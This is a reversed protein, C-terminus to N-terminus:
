CSFDISGYPAAVQLFRTNHVVVWDGPEKRLVFVKGPKWTKPIGSQRYSSWVKLKLPFMKLPAPTDGFVHCLLMEASDIVIVNLMSKVASYPLPGSNQGPDETFYQPFSQILGKGIESEVDVAYLLMMFQYSISDKMKSLEYIAKLNKYM